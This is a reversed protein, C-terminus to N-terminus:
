RYFRNVTTEMQTLSGGFIEWQILSQSFSKFIDGHCMTVIPHYSLMNEYFKVIGYLGLIGGARGLVLYTQSFTITFM